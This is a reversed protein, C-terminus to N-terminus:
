SIRVLNSTGGWPVFAKAEERGGEGTKSKGPGSFPQHGNRERVHEKPNPVKEVTERINCMKGATGVGLGRCARKTPGAQGKRM